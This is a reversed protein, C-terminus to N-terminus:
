QIRKRMFGTYVRSLSWKCWADTDITRYSQSSALSETRISFLPTAGSYTQLGNELSKVTKLLFLIALMM